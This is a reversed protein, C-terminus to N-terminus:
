LQLWLYVTLYLSLGAIVLLLIIYTGARHRTPREHNTESSAPEYPATLPRTL